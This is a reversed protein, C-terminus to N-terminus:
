ATNACCDSRISEQFLFALAESEDSGLTELVDADNAVLRSWFEEVQTDVLRLGQM